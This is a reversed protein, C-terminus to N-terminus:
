RYLIKGVTNGQRVIYIQGSVPNAIHIGQLNYYEAPATEIDTEVNEIATLHDANFLRWGQDSELYNNKMGWLLSLTADRYVDTNFANDPLTPVITHHCIVEEIQNAGAFAQSGITM